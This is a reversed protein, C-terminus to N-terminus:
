QLYYYKDGSEEEPYYIISPYIPLQTGSWSVYTLIIWSIGTLGHVDRLIYVEIFRQAIM